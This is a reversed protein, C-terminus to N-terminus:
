RTLRAKLQYSDAIARHLMTVTMSDSHLAVTVSGRATAVPGPTRLLGSQQHTRRASPLCDPRRRVWPRDSDSATSYSRMSYAHQHFRLDRWLRYCFPRKRSFDLEIVIKM